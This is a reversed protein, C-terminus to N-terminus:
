KEICYQTVSAVDDKVYGDNKIPFTFNQSGSVTTTAGPTACVAYATLTTGSSGSTAFYEDQTATHTWFSNTTSDGRYLPLSM